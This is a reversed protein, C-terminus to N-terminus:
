AGDVKTDREARLLAVEEALVETRAELRSVHLSLSMCVFLLFLLALTFLLSPGYSVGVARALADFVPRALSLAVGGLGVGIWLLAFGERLMRRRVLEVVVAVNVLALVVVFLQLRSLV